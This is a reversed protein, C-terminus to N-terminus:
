TVMAVTSKLWNYKNHIFICPLKLQLSAIHIIFLYIIPLYALTLRIRKIFLHNDLEYIICMIQMDGPFCKLKQTTFDFIEVLHLFNMEM